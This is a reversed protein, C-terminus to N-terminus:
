LLRWPVWKMMFIWAPSSAVTNAMSARGPSTDPVEIDLWTVEVVERGEGVGDEVSLPWQSNLRYLFLRQLPGGPLKLPFPDLPHWLSTGLPPALPYLTFVM